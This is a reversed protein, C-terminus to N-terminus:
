AERTFFTNDFVRRGRSCGGGSETEAHGSSGLVWLFVGRGGDSLTVRRRPDTGHVRTGDVVSRFRTFLETQGAFLGGVTRAHRLLRRPVPPRPSRYAADRHADAM